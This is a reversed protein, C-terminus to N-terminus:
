TAVKEIKVAISKMLPFGDIPDNIDDHTLLNVNSNNWGHTIQVVGELIENKTMIKAPITLEGVRSTVKVIEGNKLNLQEADSAHIEMEPAPNTTLFKKQNRYRSHTLKLKRAGSILVFPYKDNKNSLYAPSQYEPLEEYGMKKLYSSTFEIKGSPTNFEKSDIKYKEYQLPKYIFGEPHSKIEEVSMGSPKLIWENLKEANEWPFYDEMDLRQAMSHYFEYEGQVGPLTMVKESIGVMHHLGYFHIEAHELYSASPLIFDALKATESMFMERVVLLDLCEFAKRVKKSNPHTLLPNAATLILGKIPYPKATIFTNMATMTHCEKRIDYLIPYEKAGIPDLHRLPIQSYLSLSKTDMSETFCSGGKADFAGILGTICAVARINNVGNEHHELGNGVYNAVRPSREGILTAIQLLRGSDLGTENQVMEPTFTQVYNKLKEYGITHDDVFQKNISKTNILTRMIGHALAGDTGPKIQAFIDAKEAISSLRSDVVILKAGNNKAEIIPQMTM